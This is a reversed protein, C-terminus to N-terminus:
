FNARALVVAMSIPLSTPSVITDGYTLRFVILFVTQRMFGM